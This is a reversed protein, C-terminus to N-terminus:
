TIDASHYMFIDAAPLIWGFSEQSAYVMYLFGDEHKEVRYLEGITLSNSVMNRENVMLYFAQTPSLQLRKRYSIILAVFFLCKCVSSVSTM